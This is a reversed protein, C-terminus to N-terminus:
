LSTLKFLFFKKNGEASYPEKSNSKLNKQDFGDKRLGSVKMSVPRNAGRKKVYLLFM